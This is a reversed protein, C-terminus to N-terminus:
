KKDDELQELRQMVQELTYDREEENIPKVFTGSLDFGVNSTMVGRGFILWCPNIKFEEELKLALEPTVKKKKTIINRLDYISMDLKKAIEEQKLDISKMAEKFRTLLM